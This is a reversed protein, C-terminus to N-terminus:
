EKIKWCDNVRMQLAAALNAGEVLGLFVNILQPPNLPPGGLSNPRTFSLRITRPKNLRPLLCSCPCRVACWHRHPPNPPSLAVDKVSPHPPFLTYILASSSGALHSSLFQVKLLALCKLLRGQSAMYDGGKSSKSVQSSLARLLRPQGWLQSQESCSSPGSVDQPRKMGSHNQSLALLAPM